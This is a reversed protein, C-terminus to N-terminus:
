WSLRQLEIGNLLVVSFSLSFFLFTSLHLRPRVQAAMHKNGLAKMREAEQHLEELQALDLLAEDLDVEEEDGEQPPPPPAERGYQYADDYPGDVPQVDIDSGNAGHHNDDYPHDNNPTTSYSAEYDYETDIGTAIPQPAQQRYRQEAMAM